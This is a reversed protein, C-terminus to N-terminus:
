ASNKKAAQSGVNVVDSLRLVVRRSLSAEDVTMWPITM